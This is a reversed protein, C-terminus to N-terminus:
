EGVGSGTRGGALVYSFTGMSGGILVPQGVAAYRPPLAPHHPPFARTAGKRHVLVKASCTPHAPLPSTHHAARATHWCSPAARHPLHHLLPLPHSCSFGTALQCGCSALGAVSRARPQSCQKRYPGAVTSTLGLPAATFADSHFRQARGGLPSVGPGDVRGIRWTAGM